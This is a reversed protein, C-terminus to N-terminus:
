RSGRLGVSELAASPSWAEADNAANPTSSNSGREYAELQERTVVYWRGRRTGIARAIRQWARHAYGSPAHGRRSSYHEPEDALLVALMTRLEARAIARVQELDLSAVPHERGGLAKRDGRGSRPRTSSM